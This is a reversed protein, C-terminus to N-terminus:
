GIYYWYPRWAISSLTLEGVAVLQFRGQDEDADDEALENQKEIPCERGLADRSIGGPLRENVTLCRTEDQILIPGARETRLYPPLITV